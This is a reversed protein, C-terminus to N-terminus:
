EEDEIPFWRRKRYIYELEIVEVSCNRGGISVVKEKLVYEKVVISIGGFNDHFFVIGKYVRKIYYGDRMYDEYPDPPPVEEEYSFYFGRKFRKLYVSDGRYIGYLTLAICIDTDRKSEMEVIYDSIDKDIGRKGLHMRCKPVKRKKNEKKRSM